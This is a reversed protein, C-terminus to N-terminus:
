NGDLSSLGVVQEFYYALAGERDHMLSASTTVRRQHSDLAELLQLLCGCANSVFDGAQASEGTANM